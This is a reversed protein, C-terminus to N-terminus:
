KQFNVRKLRNMLIAVSHCLKEFIIITPRWTEYGNHQEAQCTRFQYSLREFLMATYSNYLVAWWSHIMVRQQNISMVLFNQLCILLIKSMRHRKRMWNLRPHGKSNRKENVHKFFQEPKVLLDCKIKRYVSVSWVNTSWNTSLALRNEHHITCIRWLEYRQFWFYFYHITRNKKRNTIDINLEHSKHCRENPPLLLSSEHINANEYTNTYILDLVLNIM